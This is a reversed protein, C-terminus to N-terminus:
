WLRWILINLIVPYVALPNISHCHREICITTIRATPCHSPWSAQIPYRSRHAPIRLLLPLSHGPVFTSSIKQPLYFQYWNWKTLFFHSLIPYRIIWGTFTAYPSWPLVYQMTVVYKPSNNDKVLAIILMMQISHISNRVIPCIRLLSLLDWRGQPMWSIQHCEVLPLPAM